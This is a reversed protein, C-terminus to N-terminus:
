ERKFYERIRDFEIFKYENVDVNVNFYRKDSLKEKHLHGHINGKRSRMENPHIPAHSLWINKYSVLSPFCEIFSEKYLKTSDHNGSIFKIRFPMKKIINIYKDYDKCDFIFDGLIFLIDRKKLKSMEEFIKEDHREISSFEQRYKKAINKHGFHLDSTFFNM